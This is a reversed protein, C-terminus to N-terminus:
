PSEVGKPTFFLAEVRQSQDGIVESRNDKLHFRIVKGQITNKGDELKPNGSLELVGKAVDYTAQSSRGTRGDRELRVNGVAKISSIAGPDFNDPQNAAPENSAEFVVTIKDAWIDMDDRAVHVEGAFVVQRGSQSYEMTKATIRTPTMDEDVAWAVRVFCLMLAVLLFISKQLM